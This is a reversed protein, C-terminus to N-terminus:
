HHNRTLPHRAYAVAHCGIAMLSERSISHHFWAPIRTIAEGLHRYHHEVAGLHQEAIATEFGAMPERDVNGTQGIAQDRSHGDLLSSPVAEGGLPSKGDVPRAIKTSDGYLAKAADSTPSAPRPAPAASPLDPYLSQAPSPPTDSM